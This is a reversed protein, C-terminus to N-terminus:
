YDHAIYNCENQVHMSKKNIYFTSADFNFLSVKAKTNWYALLNQLWVKTYKLISEVWPLKPLALTRFFIQDKMCGKKKFPIECTSDFVLLHSLDDNPSSSKLPCELTCPGIENQLKSFLRFIPNFRFHKLVQFPGINFLLQFTKYFVVCSSFLPNPPNYIHAEWLLELSIVEL